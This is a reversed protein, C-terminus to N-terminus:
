THWITLFGLSDIGIAGRLGIGAQLSGNLSIIISQTPGRGLVLDPLWYRSVIIHREVRKGSAIGRRLILAGRITSDRTLNKENTPRGVKTCDSWPDFMMDLTM